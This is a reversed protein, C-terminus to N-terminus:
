ARSGIVRCTARYNKKPQSDSGRVRVGCVQLSLQMQTLQPKKKVFAQAPAFKGGIRLQKTGKRKKKIVAQESKVVEQAPAM